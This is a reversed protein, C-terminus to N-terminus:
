AAGQPRLPVALAFGARYVPHAFGDPAVDSASGSPRTGAVIVSGEAIMHQLKKLQGAGATSDIRGSRTVVSYNGQDWLVTDSPSPVFLSLLWYSQTEASWFDDEVASSRPLLLQPLTGELFEVSDMAGWGRSRKGGIGSDALLRLAARLPAQWRDRAEDSAFCAVMWIGSDASFELCASRHPLVGNGLRDVAAGLRLSSRFPGFQGPQLLCESLGDVFWHAEDLTDGSLLADVVDLPVFRAGKWRVKASVAPPWVTQPPTVFVTDGTFPFCSSFWVQPGAASRATADLWEDLSGVHAMAHTVASYLSDSHFVFDVREAAGNDPGPRWPGGPRFKVVVSPIM